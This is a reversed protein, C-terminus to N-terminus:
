KLTAILQTNTSSKKHSQANDMQISVKKRVWAPWKEKIAPLLNDIVMKVFIKNDINISKTENNGTLRNKSM